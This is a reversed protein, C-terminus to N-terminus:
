NPNSGVLNVESIVAKPDINSVDKRIDDIVNAEKPKNRKLLRCDTSKHGQKGCNFCKGQFKLKKSVGRKPRLKTGKGKNNAKKYKSSQGYEVFNTKAEKPNHAGKKESGRNYEKVDLRIILDEISM